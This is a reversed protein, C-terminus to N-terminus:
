QLLFQKTGKATISGLKVNLHYSAGGATVAPRNVTCTTTSSRTRDWAFPTTSLAKSAGPELVQKLAAKNTQCDSSNWILDSGSTITYVQADTGVDLTCASSGNNTITMSLQPQVGAAYSSADTVATITIVSSDCATASTGTGATFGPSPNVAPQGSTQTGTPTKTGGSGPRVIILVVVIVVAVLVVLLLLRRRWYVSPPQPGVPNKITSM